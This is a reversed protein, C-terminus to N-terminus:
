SFDFKGRFLNKMFKQDACYFYFFLWTHFFKLKQLHRQAVEQNDGGFQERFDLTILNRNSLELHILDEEQFMEDMTKQDIFGSGKLVKLYERNKEKQKKEQFM